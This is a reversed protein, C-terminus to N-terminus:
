IVGGVVRFLDYQTNGREDVKVADVERRAKRFLDYQQEIWDVNGFSKSGSGISESLLEPARGSLLGACRYVAARKKRRINIKSRNITPDYPLVEIIWDKAAGEYVDNQIIEDPLEDKTIEPGLLARIATYDDADFRSVEELAIRSIVRLRLTKNATGNDNIGVVPIEYDTDVVVAPANVIELSTGTLNLTLNPNIFTSQLHIVPDPSGTLYQSLDWSETQGEVVSLNIEGDIWDPATDVTEFLTLVLPTNGLSNTATVQVTQTGSATLGTPSYELTSDTLTMGAPPTYGTTFSYRIPQRGVTYDDLNM